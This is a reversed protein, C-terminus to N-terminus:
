RTDRKSIDIHPDSFKNLCKRLYIYEAFTFGYNKWMSEM